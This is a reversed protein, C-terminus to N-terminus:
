NKEVLYRWYKMPMNRKQLRPNIRNKIAISKFYEKWLSQYIVEDEGYKPEKKIDIDSIIWEERNYVAGVGRKVDHIIWNQDALREAFHPAILGVINFKPEFPAYYINGELLRFRILGLMLHRERDVGLRTNHIKLVRDDALKLDVNRGMKWGLKLYRYIWIELDPLEALYTYFVNELARNSIKSKISDYVRKAKEEDTDIYVEKSLLNGEYDEKPLIKEPIEKRYYAEYICTLLGDFSGDYTYYLM